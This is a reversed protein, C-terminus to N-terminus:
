LCSTVTGRYWWGIMLEYFHDTLELFLQLHCFPVIRSNFGGFWVEKFSCPSLKAAKECLYIHLKTDDM